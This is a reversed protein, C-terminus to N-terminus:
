TILLSLERVDERLRNWLLPLTFKSPDWNGNNDLQLRIDAPLLCAHSDLTLEPKFAIRLEHVFLRNRQRGVLDAFPPFADGLLSVRKSWVLM